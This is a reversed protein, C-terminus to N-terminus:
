ELYIDWEDTLALTAGDSAQNSAWVKGDDVIMSLHVGDNSPLAFAGAALDTWDFPKTSVVESHANIIGGEEDPKIDTQWHEVVDTHLAVVSHEGDAYIVAVGGKDGKSLLNAAEIADAISGNGPKGLVAGPAIEHTKWSESIGLRLHGSDQHTVAVALPQVTSHAMAPATTTTINM